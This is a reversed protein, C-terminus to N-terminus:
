TVVLIFVRLVKTRVSAFLPNQLTTSPRTPARVFPHHKALKHSHFVNNRRRFSWCRLGLRVKATALPPHSFSYFLGERCISADLARVERRCVRVCRVCAVPARM